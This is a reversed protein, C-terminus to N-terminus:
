LASTVRDYIAERKELEQNILYKTLVGVLLKKLIKERYTSMRQMDVQM